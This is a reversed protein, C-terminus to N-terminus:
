VRHYWRFGSFLSIAKGAQMRFKTTAPFEHETLRSVFGDDGIYDMRAKPQEIALDDIRITSSKVLSGDKIEIRVDGAVNRYVGAYVALDGPPNDSMQPPEPTACGVMPDFSQRFVDLYFDNASGGNAFLVGVSGTERDIRLYANQGVTAGDHGILAAGDVDQFFWGLGWADLDRAPVPIRVQEKQMAKVSSDSLVTNGGINKGSNLHMRAFTVLDSASMMCCSGAPSASIPLTFLTELRKASDPNEPDPVHGSAISRGLLDCPDASSNELGLPEFLLQKLATDFDLGTVVEVIRGAVNYAVNSYSFDTGPDFLQPLLACRDLFRALRGPGSGTDTFFDGDLGSTHCLLQRVSIGKLAESNATRFDPLYTRISEDLDVRGRDVQTMLLTATLVKTVSGIQFLSDPRVVEGTDVNLVGTTVVSLQGDHLIALVGGPVGHRSAAEDLTSQWDTM